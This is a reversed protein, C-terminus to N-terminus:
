KSSYFSGALVINGGSIPATRVTVINGWRPYAEMWEAEGAFAVTQRPDFRMLRVPPFAATVFVRPSVAGLAVAGMIALLRHLMAGIHPPELPDAPGPTFLM